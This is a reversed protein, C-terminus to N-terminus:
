LHAPRTTQCSISPGFRWPSSMRAERPDARLRQGVPQALELALAHELPPDEGLDWRADLVLQGVAPAAEVLDVVRHDPPGVGIPPQLRVRRERLVPGSHHHPAALLRLVVAFM